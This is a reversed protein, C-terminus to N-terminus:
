CCEQRWEIKAQIEECGSNKLSAVLVCLLLSKENFGQRVVQKIADDPAQQGGVAEQVLSAATGGNLSASEEM